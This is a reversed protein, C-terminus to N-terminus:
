FALDRELECFMKKIRRVQILKGRNVYWMFYFGWSTANGIMNPSLGRYFSNIRTDETYVQKAIRLIGGMSSSTREVPILITSFPHSQLRTKILDLPHTCITQVIGASVGAFLQQYSSWKNDHGTMILADLSDQPLVILSSLCLSYVNYRENRNRGSIKSIGIPRLDVASL